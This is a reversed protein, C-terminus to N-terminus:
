LDCLSRILLSVFPASIGSANGLMIHIGIATTRKGYRPINTPHWSAALGVATYVGLAVWFTGMYLVGSPSPSLLIAYGIIAFCSFTAAVPGRTQKRDSFWAALM